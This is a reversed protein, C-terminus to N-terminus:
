RRRASSAPSSPTSPTTTSRRRSTSRSSAPRRAHGRGPRGDDDGRDSRAHRLADDDEAAPAADGPVRADRGPAQRRPELVARGDPIRGARPRDRTGDRGTAEPRRLAPRSGSSCTTSRRADDATPTVRPEIERKKMGHLKLGFAMNEYVTMHPYLAYSQFVMAINRDMPPVDNVLEDGIWVEGSTAEELGAAIRLVTTKGSGSPGVIVMFEGDAIELDLSDVAQHRGPVGEDAAPISRRWSMERRELAILDRYWLASRKPIRRQTPFDVFVIGFRKGYGHEWEFNDLLSWVYYGRVDVGQERAREVAEIHGALYAVGGSTRSSTPATWCTTSARRERHDPVARRRLRAQPPRAARHAVVPVVPWGM